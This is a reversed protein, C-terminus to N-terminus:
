LIKDEITGKLYGFRKIAGEFNEYLVKHLHLQHEKDLLTRESKSVAVSPELHSSHEDDSPAACLNGRYNLYTLLRM